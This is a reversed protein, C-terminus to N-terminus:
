KLFASILIHISKTKGAVFSFKIFKLYLPPQTKSVYNQSKSFSFEKMSRYPNQCIKWWFIKQKVWLMHQCNQEPNSWKTGSRSKWKSKTEHVKTTERLKHSKPKANHNWKLQLNSFELESVANVYTNMMFPTWMTKITEICGWWSHIWTLQQKHSLAEKKSTWGELAWFWLASKYFFYLLWCGEYYTAPCVKTLHFRLIITEAFTEEAWGLVEGVLGETEHWNSYSHKALVPTNPLALNSALLTRGHLVESCPFLFFGRSQSTRVAHAAM